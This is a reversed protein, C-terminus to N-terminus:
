ESTKRIATFYDHMTGQSPFEPFLTGGWDWTLEDPIQKQKKKKRFSIKEGKKFCDSTSNLSNGELVLKM